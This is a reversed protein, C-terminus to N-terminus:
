LDDWLWGGIAFSIKINVIPSCSLCACSSATVSASLTPYRCMSVARIYIVGENFSSADCRQAWGSVACLWSDGFADLLAADGAAVDEDRCLEPVVRVVGFVHLLGAVGRELVELCVVEVEVEHM